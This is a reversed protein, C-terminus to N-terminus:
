INRIVQLKSRSFLCRQPGPKGVVGGASSVCLGDQPRGDQLFGGQDIQQTAQPQTCAESGGDEESGPLVHQLLRPIQPELSNGRNRKKGVNKCNGGKSGDQVRRGLTYVQSKILPTREFIPYFPGNNYHRSRIPRYDVCVM